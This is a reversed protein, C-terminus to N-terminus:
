CGGGSLINSRIGTRTFFFRKLYYSALDSYVGKESRAERQMRNGKDSIKGLAGAQL